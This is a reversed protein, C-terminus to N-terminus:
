FLIFAIYSPRLMVLLRSICKLAPRWQLQTVCKCTWDKMITDACFFSIHHYPRYHSLTIHCASIKCDFPMTRVNTTAADSFAFTEYMIWLISYLVTYKYLSHKLFLSSKSGRISFYPLTAFEMNNLFTTCLLFASSDCLRGRSAGLIHTGRFIKYWVVLPM